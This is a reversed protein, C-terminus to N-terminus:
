CTLPVQGKQRQCPLYGRLITLREKKSTAESNERKHPLTEIKHHGRVQKKYICVEKKGKNTIPCPMKTCSVVNNSSCKCTSCNDKFSAGVKYEKKNYLCVEKKVMDKGSCFMFTCQVMDNDGCFCTNCDDNFNEGIEYHKGKYTCAEITLFTVLFVTLLFCISSM